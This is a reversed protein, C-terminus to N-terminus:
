SGLIRFKQDFTLPKTLSTINLLVNSPKTATNQNDQFWLTLKTHHSPLTFTAAVETPSLMSSTYDNYNPM